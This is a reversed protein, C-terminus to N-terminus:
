LGGTPCGGPAGSLAEEMAAVLSGGIKNVITRGPSPLDPALNISTCVDTLVRVHNRTENLYKEM